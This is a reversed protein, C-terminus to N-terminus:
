LNTNDHYYLKNFFTILFNTPHAFIFRMVPYTYKKTSFCIKPLGSPAIRVPIIGFWEFVTLNESFIETNPIAKKYLIDRKMENLQKIIKV